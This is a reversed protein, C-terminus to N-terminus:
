RAFIEPQVINYPFKVAGMHVHVHIFNHKWKSSWKAEETLVASLHWEWGWKGLVLVCM